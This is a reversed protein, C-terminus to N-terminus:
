PTTRAPPPSSPLYCVNMWPREGARGLESSLLQTQTPDPENLLIGQDAARGALWEGVVSTVDFRVQDSIMVIATANGSSAIPTPDFGNEGFSNWTESAEDWDKTVRHVELTGPGTRSEEHFGVRATLLTAGAPIGSLDFRVLARRIARSGPPTGVLLDVRAGFSRDPEDSALYTDRVAGPTLGQRQILLSQLASKGGALVKDLFEDRVGRFAVRGVVGVVNCLSSPAVFSAVGAVVESGSQLLLAPGGSDGFCIGGLGNTQDAGITLPAVEIVRGEVRRRISNLAPTSGYGVFTVSAGVAIQDPAAALPIPTINLQGQDKVALLCFDYDNSLANFCPHRQYSEVRLTRSPEAYDAGVRIAMAGDSEPCCHAATLVSLTSGDKSRRIVTGSCLGGQSSAVAVVASHTTDSRAASGVIPARNERSDERPSCSMAM